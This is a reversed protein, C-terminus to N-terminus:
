VKHFPCNDMVIVHKGGNLNNLLKEMWKIFKDGNVNCHYDEAVQSKSVAYVETAGHVFGNEGGAQSIHALNHFYPLFTQYFKLV